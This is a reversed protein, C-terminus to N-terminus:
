GLDTAAQLGLRTKGIGPPGTITLLRVDTCLLRSRLTALEQTRGILPTLPLPLMSPQRSGAAIAAAPPTPSNAHLRRRALRVFAAYEERALELQLALREAVQRSPRLVEAEIKKITSTACGVRQALAEQTLDLAQRREKIWGGFSVEADM